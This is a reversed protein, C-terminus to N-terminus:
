VEAQNAGRVGVELRRDLLTREALVEVVADVHEANVEPGQPFAALVDEGQGSVKEVGDGAAEYALELPERGLGLAQYERIRPAAVDPFQAIGDFPGHHHLGGVLYARRAERHGEFGLGGNRLRLIEPQEDLSVRSVVLRGLMEEFPREDLAAEVGM